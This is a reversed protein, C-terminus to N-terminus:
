KALEIHTVVYGGRSRGATFQVKDGAKISKLMRADSVDFEMTMADMGINQIPGHKLLVRKEKRYVKLVEASSLPAALTSLTSAPPKEALGSSPAQAYASGAATVFLTLFAILQVLTMPHELIFTSTNFHQLTLPEGHLRQSREQKQLKCWMEARIM